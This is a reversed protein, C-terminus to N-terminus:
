KLTLKHTANMRGVIAMIVGLLGLLSTILETVSQDDIHVGLMKLILTVIPFLMLTIGQITMSQYFPKTQTGASM